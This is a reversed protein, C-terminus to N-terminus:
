AAAITAPGLVPKAAMYWARSERSSGLGYEFMRARDAGSSRSYGEAINAVISGLARYLQTGAARTLPSRHMTRADEWGVQLLYVALRYATMRWLPDARLGDDAAAEWEEFPPTRSVGWLTEFSAPGGSRDAAEGVLQACSAARLACSV